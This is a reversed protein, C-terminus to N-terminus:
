RKFETITVGSVKAYMDGGYFNPYGAVGVYRSAFFYITKAGAVAGSIRYTRTEPQNVPTAADSSVMVVAPSPYAVVGSVLSIATRTVLDNTSKLDWEVTILLDSDDRAKVFSVPAAISIWAVVGVGGDNILTYGSAYGVAGEYRTIQTVAAVAIKTTDIAADKIVANKIYVTGGVIEFPRQGASDVAFYDADIVFSSEGGGALLKFGTVKGGGSVRVGYEAMLNTVRSITEVTTGDDTYPTAITGMELKCQRVHRSQVVGSVKKYHVRCRAIAAGAPAVATVKYANRSAGTSDFDYNPYRKAGEAYLLRNMSADFYEMSLVAFGSNNSVFFGFDCSFTYSRGGNIGTVDQYLVYNENAVMNGVLVLYRGWDSIRFAVGPYNGWDSYSNWNDFGFEFGGNKLLNRNGGATLVQQVTAITGAQTTQVSEVTSIRGGQTALESTHQALQTNQDALVKYQDRITASNDWIAAKDGRVIQFRRAQLHGGSAFGFMELVLKMRTVSPNTWNHSTVMRGGNAAIEPTIDVGDDWEIMTGGTDCGILYARVNSYTGIVADTIYFSGTYTVGTLGGEADTLPSAVYGWGDSTGGSWFVPGLGAWDNVFQFGDLAFGDPGKEGGGNPILNPVATATLETVLEASAAADAASAAAEVAKTTAIGAQATAGGFAAEAALRDLQAAAASASAANAQTLASDASASSAQAYNNADDAFSQAAVASASAAGAAGTAADAWAEATEAYGAATEAEGAAALAADIANQAAAEAAAVADDIGVMGGGEIRASAIQASAAGDTELFSRVYAATDYAAVIDGREARAEPTTWDDQASLPDDAAEEGFRGLYHGDADYVLFGVTVRAMGSITRLTYAARFKDGESLPLWSRTGLTQPSTFQFVEGQGEVAVVKGIAIPPISDPLFAGSGELKDSLRRTWDGSTATVIALRSSAARLAELKMTRAQPSDNVQFKFDEIDGIKM